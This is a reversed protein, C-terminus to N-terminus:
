AFDNGLVEDLRTQKISKRMARSIINSDVLNEFLTYISKISEYCYIYFRWESKLTVKEIKRQDNLLNEMRKLYTEKDVIVAIDKNRSLNAM